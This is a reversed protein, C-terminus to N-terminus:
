RNPSGNCKGDEEFKKKVPTSFNSWKSRLHAETIPTANNNHLSTNTLKQKLAGLSESLGNLTGHVRVGAKKNDLNGDSRALQTILLLVAILLQCPHACAHPTHIFTCSSISASRELRM